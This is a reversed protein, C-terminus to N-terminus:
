ESETLIVIEITYGKHVFSDGVIPIKDIEHFVFGAVTAYDIKEFDISFDEIVNVLAEIPADGSVLVSNDDRVFVDPEYEEGEDPIEGLIHEMIDHLTIIGEFGGYENVVVSFHIQKQKFQTLV